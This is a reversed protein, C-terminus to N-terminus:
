EFKKKKYFFDTTFLKFFKTRYSSLFIRKKILYWRTVEDLLKEKPFLFDSCM